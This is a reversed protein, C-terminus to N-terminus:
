CSYEYYGCAHFRTFNRIKAVTFILRINRCSWHFSTLLLFPFTIIFVSDVLHLFNIFPRLYLHALVSIPISARGRDQILLGIVRRGAIINREKFSGFM